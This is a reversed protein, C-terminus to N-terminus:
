LRQFVPCYKGDRDHILYRGPALVGWDGMTVNQAIQTIWRQDPHSTVGAVHIKRSSLHLFFLVYYTVLGCATWVETTCFDTAVFLDM